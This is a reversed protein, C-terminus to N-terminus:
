RWRGMGPGAHSQQMNKWHALGTLPVVAKMQSIPFVPPAGLGALGAIGYGRYNLNMAQNPRYFGLLSPSRMGWAYM